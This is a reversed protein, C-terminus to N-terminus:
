KEGSANITVSNKKRLRGLMYALTGKKSMRKGDVVYPAKLKDLLNQVHARTNKDTVRSAVVWTNTDIRRVSLKGKMKVPMIKDIKGKSKLRNVPTSRLVATGPQLGSGNL